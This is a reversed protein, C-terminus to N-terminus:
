VPLHPQLNGMPDALLQARLDAIGAIEAEAEARSVDEFLEGGRVIVGRDVGVEGLAVFGASLM